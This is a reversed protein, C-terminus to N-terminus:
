RFSPPGRKIGDRGNAFLVWPLQGLLEKLDVLDSADLGETFSVYVNHVRAAGDNGHEHHLRALSLAARHYM